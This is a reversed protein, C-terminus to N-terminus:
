NDTLLARITIGHQAYFAVARSLFTITTQATQNPLLQSFAIRSHDDIAVHLAEWGAFQRLGRRRGDGRISVRQYRTM